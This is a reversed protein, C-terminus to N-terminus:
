LLRRVNSLGEATVRYRRAAAEYDLYNQWQCPRLASLGHGRRWASLDFVEWGFQSNRNGYDLRYIWAGFEDKRWLAEDNGKVPQAFLWVREVVERDYGVWGEPRPDDPWRISDDQDGSLNM